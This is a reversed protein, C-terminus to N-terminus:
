KRYFLSAWRFQVPRKPRDWALLDDLLGAWDLGARHSAVLRIVYRLRHPLQDPTSELLRRFRREVGGGKEALDALVQALPRHGHSPHLAYLTAVLWFADLEGPAVGAPVARCFAAPLRAEDLSKGAQRRLAAMEGVDLRELARIFGESRSTVTAM